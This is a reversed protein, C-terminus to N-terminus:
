LGHMAKVAWYCLFLLVIVIVLFLLLKSKTPKGLGVLAPTKLTPEPQFSKSHKWETFRSDLLDALWAYNEWTDKIEYACDDMLDHFYHKEYYAQLFDNAEDTFNESLLCGDLYEKLFVSAKMKKKRVDNLAQREQDSLFHSSFLGRMIAWNLLMAIHTYAGDIPEGNKEFYEFHWKAKDYAVDKKTGTNEVIFKKPYGEIEEIAFYTDFDQPQNTEFYHNLRSIFAELTPAIVNRDNDAHWFEIIQGEQGTFLGGCDYCIYDGGGNHFVPMWKAHWWNEIEFDFGIMSTLESSTNLAEELPIFMSNNVFSSYDTDVQGNKWKYLMKLDDPLQVNYKKELNEIENDELPPRLSGYFEPRWTSLYNDLKKIVENM